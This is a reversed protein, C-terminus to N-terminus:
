VARLLDGGDGRTIALSLLFEIHHIKIIEEEIPPFEEDLKGFYPLGVGSAEEMNENVLILIRVCELRLDHIQESGSV